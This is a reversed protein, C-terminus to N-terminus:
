RSLWLPRAGQDTTLDRPEPEGDCSVEGDEPDNRCVPGRGCLTWLSRVPSGKVSVVPFGAGRSSAAGEALSQGAWGLYAHCSGSIAEKLVM